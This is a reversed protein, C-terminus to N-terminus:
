RRVRNNVWENPDPQYATIIRVHPPASCLVHLPRGVNSQGYILCSPGYKDERYEEIIEGSVIAQQVDTDMIARKAMQRVAHDTFLLQGERVAQQIPVIEM